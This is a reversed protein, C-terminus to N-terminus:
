APVLLAGTLRQGIIILILVGLGLLRTRVRIDDAFPLSTARAMITRSLSTMASQRHMAFFDLV